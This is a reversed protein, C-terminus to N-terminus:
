KKIATKIKGGSVTLGLQEIVRPRNRLVAGLLNGLTNRFDPAPSGGGCENWGEIIGKRIEQDKLVAELGLVWGPPVVSDPGEGILFGIKSFGMRQIQARTPRKAATKVTMTQFGEFTESIPKGASGLAM